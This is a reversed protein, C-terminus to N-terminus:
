YRMEPLIQKKRIYRMCMTSGKHQGKRKRCAYSHYYMMNDWIPETINMIAHQVIRDPYFPLIYIDRRKPEYITKVRYRSTRYARKQLIVELEDLLKERNADATKVTDQWTKGKRAKDFAVELNERAIIKEYLNGHRKM